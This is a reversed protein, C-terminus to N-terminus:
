EEIEHGSFGEDHEHGGDEGVEDDAQGQGGEGVAEPHGDAAEEDRGGDEIDEPLVDEVVYVVLRIDKLSHHHVLKLISAIPTPLPTM